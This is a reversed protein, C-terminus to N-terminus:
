EAPLSAPKQNGFIREMAWKIDYGIGMFAPVLFLVLLTAFALGFVMTIAMPLLFQASVSKEFLLPILGGITTLSTLLVARFRDRSAGISASRMSEGLAMRENLRSVLIISDNVLIGALGLIGMLSLITLKFGMLWHGFIAGVVGFPIILMIVFPLFYNGFTWALVIYIVTLALMVGLQLDAFAKKREEAKGGFFYEVGYKQAIAPLAGRELEAIAEETTNLAYDLDAEVKVVTKGDERRITSFGQREELNVIDVLPIFEGKPSKLNMSRLAALGNERMKQSVLVVVEDGNKVFRRPVMGALANRVQSGVNEISFGLAAGHPSLNMIIEPKGYSLDDDAGSVGNIKDVLPIIEQAAAKLTAADDGRLEVAVDVGPPGGRSQRIVLRKIGPIKPLNKQWAKVLKNTRVTRVESSTLQVAISAINDGSQSGSSGLTAFAATVLQEDGGIEAETKYLSQEVRNLAKIAADQTIGSHFVIRARINESEPSPFFVFGVRKSQLLGIALILVSAIAIAVTLYRYNFSLRVFNNFHGDRFANFGNDFWQRMRSKKMVSQDHSKIQVDQRRGAVFKELATVGAELLTGVVLAIVGFLISFSFGSLNNQLFQVGAVIANFPYFLSSGDGRSALSLFFIAFCVAFFIQRWYSWRKKLKTEMTHALHAPLILFCEILSAAIVALVVIPIPSAMKGIVDQVVLLPAFSALTTIMAAMVPLVMRQAGREAAEYSAQGNEMNTATQEGVVIADDVIVGLMMILAFLSMMNITEGLLFIFGITALMAVPIGMAVWFAVRANLFIFLVLVVIVLGTLGNNVLLSIRDILYDARADYRILELDAPLNEKVELLYDDLIKATELTDATAVRQVTLRIANRGKSFGLTDDDSFAAKVEAIDGVRIKEGTEFSRIEVSNIAKESKADAVARIQKEVNGEINGSPLDRSNNKIANSVDEITMGLRRLQYEPVDVHLEEDRFGSFSVKDIGRDILDDRIKKAYVRLAAEPVNGTLLLRAVRDYWKSQSVSPTEVSEPLNTVAKVATEVESVAKDMDSGPDYILFISASGERATSYMDQVGDLYRLSPEMVNLISKEVDESSAGDWKVSVVVTEREITPFFQTNVKSLAFFGFIIMLVMLLNAANPHRTFLGIISSTKPLERM